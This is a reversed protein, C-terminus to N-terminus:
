KKKMEDLLRCAMCEGGATPERCKKCVGIEGEKVFNEKLLPLTEIFSSIIGSKTGPHKSEFENLMDRVQGRYSLWTYPCEKFKGLLNNLYAYATVEKELLFYFPKIRPIFRTDRKIGNIVGLRAAAGNNSRFLNMVISQSEDDTHHGTAIKNAKLERAKKNLLYRRFTGCITCPGKNKLKKVMKDLSYGFEKEFSYVYLNIGRKRCLQEAYRRTLPRYGKIGEDILIAFLEFNKSQKQIDSLIKLLVSSDKGGSIAVAIRDGKEILGYNRICKRAKKEFYDNFCRKCLKEGSTLIFVPKINCKKCTM